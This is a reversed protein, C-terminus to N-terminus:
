WFKFRSKTEGSASSSALNREYALEDRPTSESVTDAGGRGQSEERYGSGGSNTRKRPREDQDVGTEYDALTTPAGKNKKRGSGGAEAGASKRITRRIMFPGKYVAPDDFDSSPPIIFAFSGNSKPYKGGIRKPLKDLPIGFDRPIAELYDAGCHVMKKVTSPELINRLIAWISSFFWPTRIMFSQSMTEPYNATGLDVVWQLIAQTQMFSSLTVGDFDRIIVTRLVEGYMDDNQLGGEVDGHVKKNEPTDEIKRAEEIGEKAMLKKRLRRINRKEKEHSLQELVLNRYEFAYLMFHLYEEKTVEKMFRESDFQYYETALPNGDPDTCNPSLIDHGILELIKEGEPFQRPFLPTFLIKNRVKDVDNEDRFTLWKDIASITKEVDYNKGRLFRLLRRDGVVDTYQPRNALKEILVPSARIEKLCKTELPSWRRLKYEDVWSPDSPSPGSEISPPIPLDINSTLTTSGSEQALPSMFM